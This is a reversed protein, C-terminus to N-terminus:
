LAVKSRHLDVTYFTQSRVGGAQKKGRQLINGIKLFNEIEAGRGEHRKKGEGM